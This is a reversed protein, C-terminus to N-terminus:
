KNAAKVAAQVDPPLSKWALDRQAPSMSKLKISINNIAEDKAVQAQRNRNQTSGTGKAFGEARSADDDSAGMKKSVQIASALQATDANLAHAEDKDAGVGPIPIYRTVGGPDFFSDEPLQGQVKNGLQYARVNATLDAVETSELSKAEGGEGKAPEALEKEKKKTDLIKGRTGLQDNVPRLGGASAARAPTNVYSQTIDGLAANRLAEIRALHADSAQAGAMAYTAKLEQSATGAARAEFTAQAKKMYAATLAQRAIDRKGGTAELMKALDNKAERKINLETEQKAIHREIKRQVIELAVNPQKTLFSGVSGLGAAVVDLWNSGGKPDIKTNAVEKEAKEYRSQFDTLQKGIEQERQAAEAEQNAAITALESKQQAEEDARQLQVKHLDAAAKRRTEENKTLAAIYDENVPQVGQRTEARLQLGGKSGATAPTNEYITGDPGEFLGGGLATMGPPGSPAAPAAPAAAPAKAPEAGPTPAAFDALSNAQRGAEANQAALREALGATPQPGMANAADLKAKLSAAADGFFTQGGGNKDIFRYAGEAGAPEYGILNGYAM